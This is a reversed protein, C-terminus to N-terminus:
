RMIQLYQNLLYNILFHRNYGPYIMSLFYDELSNQGYDFWAILLQKSFWFNLVVTM